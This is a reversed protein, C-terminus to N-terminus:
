RMSDLELRLSEMRREYADIVQLTLRDAGSKTPDKKVRHTIQAFAQENLSQKREMSRKLDDLQRHSHDLKRESQQLAKQLTSAEQKLLDVESQLAAGKARSLSVEDRLSAMREQQEKLISLNSDIDRKLADETARQKEAQAARAGEAEELKVALDQIVTEKRFVDDLLATLVERLSHAQTETLPTRGGGWRATLLSQHLRPFGMEALNASINQLAPDGSGATGTTAAVAAAAAAAAAAARDEHEQDQDQEQEEDDEGIEAERGEGLHRASSARVWHAVRDDRFSGDERDTSSAQGATPLPVAGFPRVTQEM